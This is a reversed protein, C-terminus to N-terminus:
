ARDDERWDLTGLADEVLEARTHETALADADALADLFDPQRHMALGLVRSSGLIRSTREAAVPTERFTRAVASSRTYGETLRRLQLLGLDPDPTTSLWGLLVPLLQQMVRSREIDQFGFASLREEAAAPTLPGAGALTDLLPAFFLKEHIARVVTQQA